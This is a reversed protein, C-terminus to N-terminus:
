LSVGLGSGRGFSLLMRVAWSDTARGLYSPIGLRFLAELITENSPPVPFANADVPATGVGSGGQWNRTIRRRPQLWEALSLTGDGLVVHSTGDEPLRGYTQQHM